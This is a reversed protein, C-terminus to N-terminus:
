LMRSTGVQGASSRYNVEPYKNTNETEGGIPRVPCSEFRCAGLAPTGRVSLVMVFRICLRDYIHGVATTCDM